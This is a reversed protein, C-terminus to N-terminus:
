GPGTSGRAYAEVAALECRDCFVSSISIFSPEEEM